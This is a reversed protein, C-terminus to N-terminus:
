GFLFNGMEVSEWAAYFDADYTQACDVSWAGGVGEFVVEEWVVLEEGVFVDDDGLAFFEFFFSGVGYQDQPMHAVVACDSVLITNPRLISFL